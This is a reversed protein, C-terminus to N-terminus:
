FPTPRSTLAWPRLASKTGSTLRQNQEEAPKFLFEKTRAQVPIYLPMGLMCFRRHVLRCGDQMRAESFVNLRRTKSEKSPVLFSQGRPSYNNQFVYLEARGRRAVVGHAEVRGAQRINPKQVLCIHVIVNRPSVLAGVGMQRQLGKEHLTHELVLLPDVM